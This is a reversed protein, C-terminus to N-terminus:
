ISICNVAYCLLTVAERDRALLCRDLVSVLRRLLSLEEGLVLQIGYSSLDRGGEHMVM